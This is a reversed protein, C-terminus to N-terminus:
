RNKELLQWSIEKLMSLLKSRAFYIYSDEKGLQEDPM